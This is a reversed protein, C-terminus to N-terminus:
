QMVASATVQEDVPLKENVSSIREGFKQLLDSIKSNVTMKNAARLAILWGYAIDEEDKTNYVKPNSLIDDVYGTIKDLEDSSFERNPIDMSILTYDDEELEQHFAAFPSTERQMRELFDDRLSFRLSGLADQCHEVFMKTSYNGKLFKHMPARYLGTGAYLSYFRSIIDNEFYKLV